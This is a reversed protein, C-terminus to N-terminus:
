QTFTPKAASSKRLRSFPQPVALSGDGGTNDAAVGTWEVAEGKGSVPVALEWGGVTATVAVDAEGMAVRDVMGGVGVLVGDGVLVGVAVLV